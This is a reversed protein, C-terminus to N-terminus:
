ELPAMVADCPAYQGCYVTAHRVLIANSGVPFEVQFKAAEVRASVAKMKADGSLFIAVAPKGQSFTLDFEASGYPGSQRSFKAGRLRSLEEAPTVPPQGNPLRKMTLSTEALPKGTLKQYRDAIRKRTEDYEKTISFPSATNVRAVRPIAAYALEYTHTAERSRGLKEYLQGLHEGVVSQQALLWSSHLCSEARKYDGSQFYVWGATDWLMAFDRALKHSSQNADAHSQADLEAMAKEAYRRALDPEANAEALIYAVNNLMMADITKTRDDDHAAIRLHPLAKELNGSKIYAEGLQFQLSPSEPSLQIAAELSEAAEEYKGDASLLQGLNLAAERNKPDIKLLRRWDQIADGSRHLLVALRAATQPAQTDGPSIEEEKHMEALADELRNQMGLSAGLNFHAGHYKPNGAIVQEFLEQARRGDRNQLAEVGERFKRDLDGLDAQQANSDVQLGGLKLYSFEDDSV